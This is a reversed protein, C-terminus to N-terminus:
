KLRKINISIHNITDRFTIQNNLVRYNIAYKHAKSLIQTFGNRRNSRNEGAFIAKGLLIHRLINKPYYASLVEQNFRKNDMCELLSLCINDQEITLTNLAQANSYMELKVSTNGEYIFGLDAYKFTSTKFVIFVSEQKTYSKEVCASFLIMVLVFYGIYIRKM